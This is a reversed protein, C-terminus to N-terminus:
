HVIHFLWSGKIEEPCAEQLMGYAKIIGPAYRDKLQIVYGHDNKGLAVYPRNELFPFAELLHDGVAAIVADYEQKDLKKILDAANERFWAWFAAIRDEAVPVEFFQPETGALIKEVSKKMTEYAKPAKTKLIELCAEAQEKEGRVAHLIAEPAAQNPSSPTVARSAALAAEAEEYRHLMALCSSLNAYAAGLLLRDQDTLSAADFCGIAGQYNEAAVDYICGDMHYKAVKLYPLYFHHGKANAQAYLDAMQDFRGAYECFLGMFFLFAAQDADTKLHKQLANLSLLAQPMNKSNIHNLATCLHVKAQANDPFAPKLIPGYSKQYAAWNKQFQPNFFAKQAMKDAMSPKKM